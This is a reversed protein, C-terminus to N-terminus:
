KKIQPWVKIEPEASEVYVLADKDIKYLNTNNVMVLERLNPRTAGRQGIDEPQMSRHKWLVVPKSLWAPRSPEYQGARCRGARTGAARRTEM